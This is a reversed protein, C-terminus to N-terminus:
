SSSTLKRVCSTFVEEMDARTIELSREPKEIGFTNRILAIQQELEEISTLAIMRVEHDEMGLVSRASFPKWFASIARLGMKKGERKSYARSRLLYRFVDGLADDVYAYYAFQIRNTEKEPTSM